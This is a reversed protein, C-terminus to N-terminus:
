GVFQAIVLVVIDDMVDSDADMDEIHNNQFPPVVRQDDVNRRDRQM